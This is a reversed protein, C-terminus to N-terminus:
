CSPSPDGNALTQGFMDLDSIAWDEGDRQVTVGFQGGVLVSRNQDTRTSVQDIYVLAEARDGALLSAAVERVTTDLVIKQQPALEKVQAYLADYVCRADGTLHREVAQETAALDNFDYSFTAEVATTLYSTVERTAEPDSLADNGADVSDALEKAESDARAAAQNLRDAEASRDATEARLWFAVVALLAAVAALAVVWALRGGGRQVPTPGPQVPIPGTPPEWTSM